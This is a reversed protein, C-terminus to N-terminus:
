FFHSVKEVSVSNVESTEKVEYSAKFYAKLRHETSSTSFLNLL